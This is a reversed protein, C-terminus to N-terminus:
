LEKKKGRHREMYERMASELEKGTKRLSGTQDIVFKSWERWLQDDVNISTKRKSM